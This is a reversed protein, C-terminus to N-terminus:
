KKWANVDCRTTWVMKALMQIMEKPVFNLVHRWRRVSMICVVSELAKDRNCKNRSLYEQYNSVFSVYGKTISGNEYLAELMAKEKETGKLSLFISNLHVSNRIVDCFMGAVRWSFLHDFGEFRLRKLQSFVVLDEPTLTLGWLFALTLSKLHKLEKLRKPLSQVGCHEIQLEKLTHADGLEEPVSKLESLRTLKMKQLQTLRGISKPLHAIKCAHIHLQTLHSLEGIEEPISVLNSLDDLCLKKLNKMKGIDSPIQTLEVCRNLELQELDERQVVKECEEKSVNWLSMLLCNCSPIGNSKRVVGDKVYLVGSFSSSAAGFLTYLELHHFGKFSEMRETTGVRCFASCFRERFCGLKMLEQASVDESVKGEFFVGGTMKDLVTIEVVEEGDDMTVCAPWEM